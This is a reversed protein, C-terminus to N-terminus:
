CWSSSPASLREILTDLAEKMWQQKCANKVEAVTAWRRQRSSIEPWEHLEETVRMPFMYGVKCCDDTKSKFAWKGLREQLKM